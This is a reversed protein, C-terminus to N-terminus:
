INKGKAITAARMTNWGAMRWKIALTLLFHYSRYHREGFLVGTESVLRAFHDSVEPKIELAAASDAVIDLEHAPSTKPSLDISRYHAGAIVPSDILTELSVPAFFPMTGGARGGAPTLATGFKWGGPLQLSADYQLERPNAGQPYLVVENWNLDLLQATSSAGSSFASSAPPLLFDLAVDVAEGGSPVDLHFAYMDEDDRRWPVPKGEVTMRLGTLDTIPGTPGHEGPIWKPYVLTL